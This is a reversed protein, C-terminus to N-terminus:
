TCHKNENSDMRDYYTRRPFPLRSHEPPNFMPALRSLFDGLERPYRGLLEPSGAAIAAKNQAPSGVWEGLDGKPMKAPDGAVGSREAGFQLNKAVGNGDPPDLCDSIISLIEAGDEFYWGVPHEEGNRLAQKADCANAPPSSTPKSPKKM